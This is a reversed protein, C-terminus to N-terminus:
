AVAAAPSPSISAPPGSPNASSRVAAPARLRLAQIQPLHIHIPPAVSRMFPLVLMGALVMTWVTHQATSSRRVFSVVLLALIALVLARVSIDAIGAVLERAINSWSLWGM